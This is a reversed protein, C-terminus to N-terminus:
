YKYTKVEGNRYLYISDKGKNKVISDNKQYIYKDSGNFRLIQRNSLIIILWGHNQSDIYLSDIKGQFSFNLNSETRRQPEKKQYDKYLFYGIIFLIFGVFGAINKFKAM